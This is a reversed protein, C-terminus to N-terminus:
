LILYWPQCCFRGLLNLDNLLDTAMGVSGSGGSPNPTTGNSVPLTPTGFNLDSLDLLLDAGSPSEPKKEPAPLQDKSSAENSSGEGQTSNSTEGGKEGKIVRKYHDMVRLLSENTQLIEAMGEENQQLESAMKFLQPRM